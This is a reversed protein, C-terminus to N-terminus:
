NLYYTPLIDWMMERLKTSHESDDYRVCDVNWMGVGRLHLQRALNYKKELSKQDDFWVQFVSGNHEQYTFYPTKSDDDWMKGTKSKPLMEDVIVSIDFEKGAADSCNAGRFPVKKLKCIRGSLSICPYRYGYWPVGLVLKRRPIRLETSYENIGYVANNYASNPGAICPGFIQSREDYAMVFLFDTVESLAKVDYCRDDICHPSWAVDYTIQYNPNKGKLIQYTENVLSTLADRLDRRTLPLADETDFNVGDYFYKDVESLQQKIWQKRYTNNLLQGVPFNVIRVVRAGHKHAHCMLDTDMFGVTVVTTM